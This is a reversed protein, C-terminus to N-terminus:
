SVVTEEEPRNDIFKGNVYDWGIGAHSAPTLEVLDENEEAVPETEWLSVNVVKGGIIHAYTKLIIEKEM